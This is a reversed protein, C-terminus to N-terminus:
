KQIRKRAEKYVDEAAHLCADGSKLLEKRKQVEDMWAQEIEPDIKGHLSQLLTDALRAKSKRDLNLASHEIEKFNAIM